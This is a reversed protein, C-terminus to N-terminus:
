KGSMTSTNSLVFRKWKKYGKGNVQNNEFYGHIEAMGNRLKKTGLGKM